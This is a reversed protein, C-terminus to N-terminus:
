LGKFLALKIYWSGLHGYEYKEYTSSNLKLTSKGQSYRQPIRMKMEAQIYGCYIIDAEFDGVFNLNQCFGM